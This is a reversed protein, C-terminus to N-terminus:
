PSGPTFLTASPLNSHRQLTNTAVHASVHPKSKSANTTVNSRQWQTNAALVVLTIIPQRVHKYTHTSSNGHRHSTCNLVQSTFDRHHRLLWLLLLTPHQSTANFLAKEPELHKLHLYHQQQLWTAPVPADNPSVPQGYYYGLQREVQHQAAAANQLQQHSIQTEHCRGLWPCVVEKRWPAHTNAKVANRSVWGRWALTRM